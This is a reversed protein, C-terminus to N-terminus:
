RHMTRPNNSFWEMNPPAIGEQWLLAILEGIHFLQETVSQFVCEEATLNYKHRQKSSFRFRVKRSLEGKSAHQLYTRTNSEVQDLYEIVMRMNKFSAFNPEKYSRKEGLIASGVLWAEVYVMHVLINKMSHFSAERNEFTVRRPLRALKMAFNRRVASSYNYLENITFM